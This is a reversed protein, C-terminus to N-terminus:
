KSPSFIERNSFKENGFECCLPFSAPKPSGQLESAPGQLAYKTRIEAVKARSAQQNGSTAALDQGASNDAAFTKWTARRLQAATPVACRSPTSQLPLPLTLPKTNEQQKLRGQRAKAHKGSTNTM